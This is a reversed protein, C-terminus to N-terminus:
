PLKEGGGECHQAEGSSSVGLAHKRLKRLQPNRTLTYAIQWRLVAKSSAGRSVSEGCFTWPNESSSPSGCVETVSGELDKLGSSVRPTLPASDCFSGGPRGLSFRAALARTWLLHAFVRMTPNNHANDVMLMALYAKYGRDFSEMDRTFVSKDLRGVSFVGFFASLFIRMLCTFLGVAMNTFVSYYNILEYLKRNDVNLPPDRDGPWVKEQLLVRKSIFVQLYFLLLMTAPFSLLQAIQLAVDGLMGFQNLLVIPETIALSALLVFIFSLVCGWVMFGVQYGPYIMSNTLLLQSSQNAQFVFDKQGQYLKLMHYRYNRTAMFIHVVSSVIAVVASVAACVSIIAVQTNENSTISQNATVVEYVLRITGSILLMGIWYIINIQVFAIAFIKTPYKFFPLNTFLRLRKNEHMRDTFTKQTTHSKEKSKRLVWRVHEEQHPKAMGLRHRDFFTRSKLCRYFIFCCYGILVVYCFLSPLGQLIANAKSLNLTLSDFPTLGWLTSNASEQVVKVTQLVNLVFWTISYFVCIVAGVARYRTSLCAFLPFCTLCGIFAQLYVYLARGWLPTNFGLTNQSKVLSVFTNTIAGFAVAYASRNEYGDLFPLPIIIGPRGGCVDPRYKRRELFSLFLIICAAPILIWNNIYYINFDELEM